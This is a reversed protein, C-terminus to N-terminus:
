APVTVEFWSEFMGGEVGDGSRRKPLWPPLHNGDVARGDKDSVLDGHLLVRVRWGGQRLIPPAERPMWRVGDVFHNGTAEAGKDPKCPTNFILYEIMESPWNCWCVLGNRGDPDQVQIELSLDDIDDRNVPRDFGIILGEQLLQGLMMKGRHEWSIACVHTLTEDLGSDGRPGQPGQPGVPGQPGIGGPAGPLGAPGAPGVPGAPGPPGQKGSGAPANEMFCLLANAIAQTSPLHIRGLENNLRAIHATLDAAPDPPTPPEAELRFGPRWNKITALVVCDPIVCAPCDGGRLGAACDVDEVTLVSVGGSDAINLDGVYPAYARDGVLVIMEAGDGVPTPATPTAAAGSGLAALSVGQAFRHAGDAVLVIAWGGGAAVDAAIPSHALTVSGLVSAGAPDVLLAAKATADLLLLRDPGTSRVIKGGTMAIAAPLGAIATEPLGSAAVDISFLGNGAPAGLYLAGGSGEGLLIRPGGLDHTKDPTAPDAVGANWLRLRGDGRGVAVLRGDALVALDLKSTSTAGPVDGIRAPGAGLGGAADPDFVALRAPNAAAVPDLAVYVASGDPAVALGTARAGLAASAELAHNGLSLQYLTGKDDGTAVYLRGRKGDVAVFRAHAIQLTTEWVISAAGPNFTPPPPDIRIDLAYSELIRNPACQTDDCGCEDFLVPVEETPCERYRLCVQLDHADPTKNPDAAAADILAKVPPFSALEITEPAAVLIDQGCCDVAGGPQLVFLRDRCAPNPHPTLELGCIVGVGHLRQHHLRIKERFYHQEDTFDREVLLKGTFYHNRVPSHAECPEVCGCPDVEGNHDKM